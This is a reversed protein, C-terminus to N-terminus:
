DNVKVKYFEILKSTDDPFQNEYIFSDSFVARWGGKLVLNYNFGPIIEDKLKKKKAVSYPMGIRLGDFSSQVDTTSIYRILSFGDVSIRYTTGKFHFLRCPITNNGAVILFFTSSDLLIASKPIPKGVDLFEGSGPDNCACFLIIIIQFVVIKKYM